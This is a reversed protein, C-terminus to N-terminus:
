YKIQFIFRSNRMVNVSRYLNLQMWDFWGKRKQPYLRILRDFLKQLLPANIENLHYSLKKELKSKEIEIANQIRVLFEFSYSVMRDCM